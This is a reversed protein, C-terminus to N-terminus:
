RDVRVNAPGGVPGVTYSLDDVYILVHQGGSQINFLGFRDFVAGERRHGPKLDLTKRLGDFTLEIRGDGNAGSPSYHLTWEHAQGDPRIMPGDPTTSDLGTGTRYAPRVYHGARSPGEILLALFAHSSPHGRTVNERRKAASDFWGLYVGSDSNASSLALKGSARLEVDLSLRGVRDAYYAPREDRWILGGIEGPGGGAVRTPSFGFDHRPRVVREAFEVENGRAEWGPDGALDIPVGDLVLDDFYVELSKGSNQHNWLGFRNFAAGDAKHGPGLSASYSKGDLVFLLKGEDDPEYTLSWRHSTGDARFPSTETTQYKGLFTAGGGTRWQGTGYEFLVWYKGGNGDIRLAVSNPTRWGRSAEHFWGFLAGSSGEAGTVAFRGSASLRDNLTRTPMVRAYWGPTLSRSIRGGIEGAALGGALNTERWGFHQRTVPLPDTILRNRHGDWGPDVAFDRSRIEPQDALTGAAAALICLVTRYRM